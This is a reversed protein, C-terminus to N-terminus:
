KETITSGTASLFKKYFELIEAYIKKKSDRPLMAYEANIKEYLEAAEKYKKLELSKHAALLLDYIEEMQIDEIKAYEGKEGINYLSATLKAKEKTKSTKLINKISFTKLAAKEKLRIEARIDSLLEKFDKSVSLIKKRSPAIGSFELLSIENLFDFIRKKLADDSKKKALEASLEEYTFKYKVGFFSSFFKKTIHSLQIVNDEPLHKSLNKELVDIKHLANGIINEKIEAARFHKAKKM